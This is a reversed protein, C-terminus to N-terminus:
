RRRRVMLLLGAGLVALSAPEPVLTVTFDTTITNNAAWPNIRVAIVDGASVSYHNLSYTYGTVKYGSSGPYESALVTDNKFITVWYNGSTSSLDISIDVPATVNSKWILIPCQNAAGPDISGLWGNGIQGGKPSANGEWFGGTHWWGMDSATSPATGSAGVRYQWAVNGESDQVNTTVTSFDEKFDWTFGDIYAAQTFASATLLAAAIFPAVTKSRSSTM